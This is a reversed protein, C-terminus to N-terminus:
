TSRTGLHRTPRKTCPNLAAGTPRITVTTGDNLEYSAVTTPFELTSVGVGTTGRGTHAMGAGRWSAGVRARGSATGRHQMLTTTMM